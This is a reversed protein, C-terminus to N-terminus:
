SAYVSQTVSHSHIHFVINIAAKSSHINLPPEFEFDSILKEKYMKYQSEHM